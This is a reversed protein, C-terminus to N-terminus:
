HCVFVAVVLYLKKNWKCTKLLSSPCLQQNPTNLLSIGQYKFNVLGQSLSIGYSRCPHLNRM